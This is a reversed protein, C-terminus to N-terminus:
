KADRRMSSYVNNNLYIHEQSDNLFEEEEEKIDDELKAIDEEIVLSDDIRLEEVPEETEESKLIDPVFDDIYIREEGKDQSDDTGDTEIVDALLKNYLIVNKRNFYQRIGDVIFSRTWVKRTKPKKFNFYFINEEVEFDKAKYGLKIFAKLFAQLMEENPFRLSIDLSLDKPKSFMGLKFITLWWHKAKVRALVKDKKYLILNMDLMDEPSVPLYVTKKDVYQENTYYIGVEAGTVIGYQGKWFTILWNKNNYYFRIPETDIIMQFLPAGVDYIHTYGFNKQWANKTAYFIDKQPDYAFGLANFGDFSFFGFKKVIFYLILKVLIYVIPLIFCFLIIMVDSGM